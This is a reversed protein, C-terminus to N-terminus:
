SRSRTLIEASRHGDPTLEIREPHSADDVFGWGALGLDILTYVTSASFYNGVTFWLGRLQSKWCDDERYIRLVLEQQRRSLTTAVLELLEEGEATLAAIDCGSNGPGTAALEADVLAYITSSSARYQGDSSLATSWHRNGHTKVACGDTRMGRLVQQQRKTLM